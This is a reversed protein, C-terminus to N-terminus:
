GEEKRGRGGEAYHRFLVSRWEWFESFGRRYKKIHFRAWWDIGDDLSLNCNSM